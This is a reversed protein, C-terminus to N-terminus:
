FSNLHQKVIELKRETSLTDLILLIGGQFFYEAALDSRFGIHMVKM